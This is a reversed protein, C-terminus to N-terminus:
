GAALDPRRRRSLLRVLGPLSMVVVLWIWGILAQEAEFWRESEPPHGRFWAAWDQSPVLIWVGLAAIWMALTAGIVLALYGRQPRSSRLYGWAGAALCLLASLAYPTEYRYEDFTLVLALMGGGYLLYSLQTWDEQLRNALPRFPALRALLLVVLSVTVLLSLWVVGEWFTALLLRGLESNSQVIFRSALVTAIREAEWQFLFVFVILSFVLGLYPLSWRPFRKLLGTLSGIILLALIAPPIVRAIAAPPATNLLILGAPILFVALAVLAEPRSLRDIGRSTAPGRRAEMKRELRAEFFAALPIDRLERALTRGLTLRGEGAADQVSRAFVSKMEEGFQERFGPPYLQVLAAHLWLVVKQLPQDSM